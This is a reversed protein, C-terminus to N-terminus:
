FLCANEPESSGAQRGVTEGRGGAQAHTQQSFSLFLDKEWIPDLDRGSFPGLTRILVSIVWFVADCGPGRGQGKEPPESRRREEGLGRAGVWGRKSLSTPAAGEQNTQLKAAREALSQLGTREGERDAGKSLRQLPWAM